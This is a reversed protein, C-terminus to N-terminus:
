GTKETKRFPEVLKGVAKQLYIRPFALFTVTWTYIKLSLNNRSVRRGNRVIVTVVGVVQDYPLNHEMHWQNDGAMTFGRKGRRIVRHLAYRGNRRDFLVIDGTRIRAPPEIVVGDRLHRLLPQMSSGTVRVYAQGSGELQCRVLDFYTETPLIQVPARSGTM